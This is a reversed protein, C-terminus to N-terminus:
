VLIGCSHLSDQLTPTNTYIDYLRAQWAQTWESKNILAPFVESKFIRDLSIVFKQMVDISIKANAVEAQIRSSITSYQKVFHNMELNVQPSTLLSAHLATCLRISSAIDEYGSISADESIIRKLSLPIKHDLADQIFISDVKPHKYRKFQLLQITINDVTITEAKTTSKYMKNCAKMLKDLEAFTFDIWDSSENIQFAGLMAKANGALEIGKAYEESVFYYKGLEFAMQCCTANHTDSNEITKAKLLSNLGTEVFKALDTHSEIYECAKNVRRIMHRAYLLFPHLIPPAQPDIALLVYPVETPELIAELKHLPINLLLFIKSITTLHAHQSHNTSIGQPNFEVSKLNAMQMHFEMVQKIEEIHTNKVFDSLKQDDLLLLMPTISFNDVAVFFLFIIFDFNAKIEPMMSSTFDGTDVADECCIMMDAQKWFVAKTLLSLLILM